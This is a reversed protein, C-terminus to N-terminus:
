EGAKELDWRRDDAAAEAISPGDHAPGRCTIRSSAIAMQDSAPLEFPTRGCCPTLGSGDPPCGHVVSAREATDIITAPNDPLAQTAEGHLLRDAACPNPCNLRRCTVHGGAALMLSTGCCAPCRGQVTTM